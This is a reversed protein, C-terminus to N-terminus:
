KKTLITIVFLEQLIPLCITFPLKSVMKKPYDPLYTSIPTHLDLKNEAVLQLILLATFPKTVSAIRFKTDEKNPINWEM